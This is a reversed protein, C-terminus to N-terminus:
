HKKKKEKRKKAKKPAMAAAETEAGSDSDSFQEERCIVQRFINYNKGGHIAFMVYQFAGAFEPIIDRFLEAVHRPPCSFAGCGWASLVVVDHGYLYAVRLVMRIKEQFQKIIEEDKIREDKDLQPQNPAPAAIFNLKIPKTLQYKRKSNLKFAWVNKSYITDTNKLPYFDTTLTQFYNTRRFLEEEQAASGVDVFGGPFSWDCMNLIVPNYKKLKLAMGVDLCDQELIQIKTQEFRPVIDIELSTFKVSSGPFLSKYTTKCKKETDNWVKVRVDHSIEERHKGM